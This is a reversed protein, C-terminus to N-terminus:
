NVKDKEKQLYTKYVFTLIGDLDKIETEKNFEFKFYKLGNLIAEELDGYSHNYFKIDKAIRTSDLKFFITVGKQIRFREAYKPYKIKNVLSDLNVVNLSDITTIKCFAITVQGKYVPPPYSFPTCDGWVVLHNQSSCSLFLVTSFIIFLIIKM